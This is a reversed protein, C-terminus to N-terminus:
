RYIELTWGTIFNLHIRNKYVRNCLNSNYLILDLFLDTCTIRKSWMSIICQYLICTLIRLNTDTGRASVIYIMSGIKASTCHMLPSGIGRISVLCIVTGIDTVSVICIM